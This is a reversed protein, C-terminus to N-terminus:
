VKGQSDEESAEAQVEALWQPLFQSELYENNYNGLQFAPAALLDYLFQQNTNVGEICLEELARKMRLLASERDDGYAIVKAIMSDYFAPLASGSLIASDVRLGLGGLPWHIFDFKGMSPLFNKEPQEANIRCEIAHGSFHVDSQQYSLDYGYAVRIQEAVIDIGTVLETIPHEVQIRTNMEMFYFNDDDDVLFEITGAGTYQVNEGARVAAQCIAQRTKDSIFPSPTEELVKQHNRQLSCEREGLHIVHGNQDALIQVEIHHAPHIVKELYLRADNFGQQAERSAEDFQKQLDEPCDVQRMGKGGGGSTAKLLVPYGVREAEALGESASHIFDKSGPIVPVNAAMMTQRAHQKDGMKDIVEASPGIFTINMEQCLRAFKSNESLFGFGPHIAEANTVYAASLIAQMDLYSDKSQPGGICVSEDALQVHLAEKDATSYVAVTDIGMEKCTRIVRVAIEGRNAILIKSFM